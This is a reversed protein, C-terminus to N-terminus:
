VHRDVIEVGTADASQDVKFRPFQRLRAVKAGICRQPPKRDVRIRSFPDLAPLDWAPIPGLGICDGCVAMEHISRYDAPVNCDNLVPRDQDLAISIRVEVDELTEHPDAKALVPESM